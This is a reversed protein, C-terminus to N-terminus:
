RLSLLAKITQGNLIFLALDYKILKQYLPHGDIILDAFKTNKNGDQAPDSEDFRTGPRTELYNITNM